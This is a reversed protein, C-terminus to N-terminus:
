AEQLCIEYLIISAAVGVNLSDCKGLMPISVRQSNDLNWEKSLGYRENGVVLATKKGYNVQKFNHESHPDALVLTYNNSILWKQCSCVSDFFYWPITFSGGMSAKITKYSNIKAKENIIIIADVGSGDCTRFITGINGPTELGDLIILKTMNDNQTTLNMIPLTCISILGTAKDKDCIRKTVKESISYVHHARSLCSKYISNELPTKILDKCIVLSEIDVKSGLVKEHDWHGEIVFRYPQSKDGKKLKKISKIIEHQIGIFKSQM